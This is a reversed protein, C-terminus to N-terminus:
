RFGEEEHIGNLLRSATCENAEKMRKELKDRVLITKCLKQVNAVTKNTLVRNRNTTTRNDFLHTISEYIFRREPTQDSPSGARPVVRGNCIKRLKTTVNDDQEQKHYRQMHKKCKQALGVFAGNRIMGKLSKAKAFMSFLRNGLELFEDHAICSKGTSRPHPRVTRNIRSEMLMQYSHKVLLQAVQEHYAAVYKVQGLSTWAAVFWEYGQEIGIADGCRYSQVFLFFDDSMHLFLCAMKMLEDNSHDENHRLYLQYEHAVKCIIDNDNKDSPQQEKYAKWNTSVFEHLLFRHLEENTLKILRTIQYYCSAVKENCRKWGLFDKMPSLLPTWFCKVIGQAMNLGTHWDGPLQMVTNLAEEFVDANESEVELSFRRNRLERAFGAMNEISKRDGFIYNRHRLYSTALSWIGYAREKITGGKLLLDLSV